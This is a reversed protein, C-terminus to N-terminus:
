ILNKKKKMWMDVEGERRDLSVYLYVLFYCGNDVNDYINIYFCIGLDGGFM